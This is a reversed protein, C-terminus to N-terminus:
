AAVPEPEFSELATLPDGALELPKGLYAAEFAPRAWKLAAIWAKRETM